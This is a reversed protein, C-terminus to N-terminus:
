EGKLDVNGLYQAFCDGIEVHLLEPAVYGIKSGLAKKFDQWREEEFEGVGLYREEIFLNKRLRKIMDELYQERDLMMSGHDIYEKDLEHDLPVGIMARVLTVCEAFLMRQAKPITEKNM